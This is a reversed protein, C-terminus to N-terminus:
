LVRLRPTDAGHPLTSISLREYESVFSPEARQEDVAIAALTYTRNPTRHEMTARGAQEFLVDVVARESPAILVTDVSQEHEYRGSDGGVLKMRAGRIAVNFVRTNATNTLYFRVVEDRRAQLSLAPDGNVLLTNGFRWRPTPRSAATLRRL